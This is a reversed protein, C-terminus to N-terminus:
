TTKFKYLYSILTGTKKFGSKKYLNYARYNYEGVTVYAEYYGLKRLKNLTHVMLFKALGQNRFNEHIGFNVIYPKAIPRKEIIVQSYGALNGNVYLFTSGNDLFYDQNEEFLIDEITCDIHGETHKFIANQIYARKREDLGKIFQMFGINSQDKLQYKKNLNLKMEFIKKDPILNLKSLLSNEDKNNKLILIRAYKSKKLLFDKNISELLFSYNLSSNYKNEIFLEYVNVTDAGLLLHKKLFIVYGRVKSDVELLKVKLKDVDFIISKINNDSLQDYAPKYNHAKCYMKYFEKLYNSNYNYIKLM